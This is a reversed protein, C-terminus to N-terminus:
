GPLLGQHHRDRPANADGSTPAPSPETMGRFYFEELAAFEAWTRPVPRGTAEAYRRAKEGIAGIDPLRGAEDGSNM